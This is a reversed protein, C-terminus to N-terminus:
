VALKELTVQIENFIRVVQNSNKCDVILNNFPLEDEYLGIKFKAISSANMYQIFNRQEPNITILIDYPTQRFREVVEGSPIGAWNINKRCFSFPIEEELEKVDLFTYLEVKKGRKEWDKVIQNLKSVQDISSEDALIGVFSSLNKSEKKVHKQEALKSKLNRAFVFDKLWKM